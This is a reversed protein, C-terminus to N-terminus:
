KKTPIEVEVTMGPKLVGGADEVRIKVRFTKIDQRGRTVDRQTAFDAYRGIEYVTGNFIQRTTGETKIRATTNLTVGAILSEDIDARVYLNEADVITLITMGPSVTEGKELAKFVVSGSLPSTITTDSLKALAYSLNAESQKLNAKASSLQSETTRLQAAAAEKKSSASAFRAQSATYDAVSANYAAVALDLSEKSIFEKKFLAASRDMEAKALEMQVRAKEIDSEASKSDAEATVINAQANGIASEAVRVDARAKEIGARAQEVSARLDDSELTVAAEGEKVSDGENCCVSSIRGSVKPSLNVETGEIIGTSKITGTDKGRHVAFFLIAIVAFLIAITIVAIRKKM